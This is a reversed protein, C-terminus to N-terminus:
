EMHKMMILWDGQTDKTTSVTKFGLKEYIYRAQVNDPRVELRVVTVNKSKLYGLGANMLGKGIKQGQFDPHVAITLIRAECKLHEDRSEHWLYLWNKAAIRVPKLGIRYQGTIWRFFMKLIHGRIIATSFIASLKSPAFIYGLVKGNSVAVILADPETEICVSFIDVFLVPAVNQSGYHEVSEPFAALFIEAIQLLDSRTAKRYEVQNSSQNEM